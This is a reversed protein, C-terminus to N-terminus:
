SWRLPVLVDLSLGVYETNSSDVEGGEFVVVIKSESNFEDEDVLPVVKINNHLITEFPNEIDEHELPDASTCKLYKLLNQNSLLRKAIQFLNTGLEKSNRVGM